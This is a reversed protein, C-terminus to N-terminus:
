NIAIALGAICGFIGLICVFVASVARFGEIEAIHNAWIWIFGLGTIIGGTRALAESLAGPVYIRVAGMLGSVIVLPLAVLVAWIIAARASWFSGQGGALRACLRGLAALLFLLLPTMFLGSFLRISMIATLPADAGLDDLTGQQVAQAQQIAQPLGAVFGVLAALMALLLLEADRPRRLLFRSMGGRLDRYSALISVLLGPPSAGSGPEAPVIGHWGPRFAGAFKM